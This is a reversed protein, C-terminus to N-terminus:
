LVGGCHKCIRQGPLGMHWKATVIGGCDMHIDEEKNKKDNWTCRVSEIGEDYAQCKSCTREWWGGYKEILEKKRAIEEETYKRLDVRRHFFIFFHWCDCGRRGPMLGGTAHHQDNPM